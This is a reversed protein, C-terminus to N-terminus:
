APSPATATGVPASWSAVTRRLVNGARERLNPWGDDDRYFRVVEWGVVFVCAATFTGEGYVATIVATLAFSGIVALSCRRWVSGLVAREASDRVALDRQGEVVRAVLWAVCSLSLLGLAPAVLMSHMLGWMSAVVVLAGFATSRVPDM